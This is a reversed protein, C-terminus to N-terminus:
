LRSKSVEFEKRINKVPRQFCLCEYSSPQRRRTNCMLDDTSERHLDREMEVVDVDDENSIMDKYSM